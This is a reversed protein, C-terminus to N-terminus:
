CYSKWKKRHKGKQGAKRQLIEIQKERLTTWYHAALDYKWWIQECFTCKHLDDRKRGDPPIFPVARCSRYIHKCNECPM